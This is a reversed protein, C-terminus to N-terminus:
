IKAHKELIENCCRDLTTELNIFQHGFAKEAKISSFVYKSQSLKVTEKTILPEKKTILCRIHEIRWVIAALFTNVKIHPPKKNLRVAIKNFLDQYTITGANLVFREGYIPTLLNKIVIEAVDKVDIYNIFGTTYFRKETLVYNFIKSSSRDLNGTALVVSPNFITALLGEEVGRWVELESLYKTKAYYSNSDSDSWTSNESINTDKGRGLSAVSSIHILKKNFKLCLNVVNKTGEVNTQYMDDYRSPSFTVIAATHIVIECSQIADVLAILDLVDAQVWHLSPHQLKSHANDRKTAYVQYGATLLHQIIEGGVLGTGGTVFVRTTSYM